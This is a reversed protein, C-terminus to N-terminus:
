LNGDNEPSQGRTNNLQLTETWRWRVLAEQAWCVETVMTAVTFTMTCTMSHHKQPGCACKHWQVYQKEPYMIKNANAASSKENMGTAQSARSRESDLLTHNSSVWDDSSYIDHSWSVLFFDGDGIVIWHTKWLIALPLINNILVETQSDRLLSLPRTNAMTNDLRYKHVHYKPM